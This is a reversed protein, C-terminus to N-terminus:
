CEIGEEQCLTRLKEKARQELKLANQYSIGLMKAVEKLEDNVLFYCNTSVPGVVMFEVHIM